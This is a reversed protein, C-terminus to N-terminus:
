PGTRLSHAMAGMGCKACVAEGGSGDEFDRWGRFDHECADAKPTIHVFLEPEGGRESAGSPSLAADVIDFIEAVSSAKLQCGRDNSYTRAGSSRLAGELEAVRARLIAAEAEEREARRKNLVMGNILVDPSHAALKERLALEAEAREARANAAVVTELVRELNVHTEGPEEVIADYGFVSRIVKWGREARERDNM